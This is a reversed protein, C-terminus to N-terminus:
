NLQILKLLSELQSQYSFGGNRVRLSGNNTIEQLKSKDSLMGIVSSTIEIEKDFYVVDADNFFGMIEDNRPTVLLAGCAPIEFTRTTHREPVWSSLLGLSIYSNSITSVYDDGVINEGLYVLNGNSKNKTIFNDWKIGAIVVQVNSDILNQVIAGRNNEYHGIFCVEYKKDEFKYKPRHLRDDFGQTSYLVSNAGYKKYNNIEYSKTTICYDYLSISNYFLKSQHYFFAPDPTYHILKKTSRRLKKMADSAILTGKDVWVLDYLDENDVHEKIAKSIRWILPGIKYRWGLSRIIKNSSYIIPSINILEIEVSMLVKLIEFRM